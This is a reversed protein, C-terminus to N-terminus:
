HPLAIQPGGLQSIPAAGHRNIFVIKRSKGIEFARKFDDAGSEAANPKVPAAAINILVPALLFAVKTRVMITLNITSTGIRVAPPPHDVRSVRRHAFM